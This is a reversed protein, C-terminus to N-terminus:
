FLSLTVKLLGDEVKVSELTSKLLKQQMDDDTLIYVPYVLMAQNAVVGVAQAIVKLAPASGGPLHDLEFSEIALDQFYFAASTADYRITGIIKGRGAGYVGGPAHVEVNTFIGIRDSDKILEIKPDFIRVTIFFQKKEVPMMASVKEQIDKESIEVTYSLAMAFGPAITLMVTLMM